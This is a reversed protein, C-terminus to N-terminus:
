NLILLLMVSVKIGQLIIYHLNPLNKRRRITRRQRVIRLLFFVLVMVLFTDRM